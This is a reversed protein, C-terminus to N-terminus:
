QLDWTGDLDPDENATYFWIKITPKYLIACSGTDLGKKPITDLDAEKQLTYSRINSVVATQSIEKYAM